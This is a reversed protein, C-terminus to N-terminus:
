TTRAHRRFFDWMLRNASISRTSRGLFRQPPSLGPWTHGAGEIAVLVVEAGDRGPGYTTQVVNMDDPPATALQREIGEAPCGNFEIWTEITHAVSLFDTRSQSRRGVGGEWPAFLDDTGHFHIVPVPRRPPETGRSMPGAVPAIACIRESLESALRYALMAGNSMGAAFVQGPDIPLVSQLDDLLAATFAVDDVNFKRAYSCCDGANWSCIGTQRGSGNPYVAVFGEHDALENLGSFRVMSEADVGNGHFALVLPIADASRLKGPFHVLFTRADGNVQVTRAYDGAELPIPGPM